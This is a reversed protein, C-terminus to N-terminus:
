VASLSGPFAISEGPSLWAQKSGCCLLIPRHQGPQASARISGGNVRLTLTHERYTIDFELTGLPEPWYPNLHLTDGRTELGAFCRQLIDVSGAMAALHIGEATTGGQVDAADTDLSEIFYALARDRRNRALVWAHVVASLTSGHSTRAIYYEVNRKVADPDLPYGLRGFLEYLEDTSLLYFLMLVDAQKSAKYRNPSDGEVELIRDLRRIDGYRRRYDEWPLEALDDYGEFQCIIGDSRVPLYMQSAIADWRGPEGPDVALSQMLEGCRQESLLMLVDLARRLVWVTMV